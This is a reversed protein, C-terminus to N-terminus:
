KIGYLIGIRGVMMPSRLLKPIFAAKSTNIFDVREIGWSKIENILDDINGYFYKSTFLDQFVFRGNKKVVRLAEKIVKRKDKTDKVEHFVFNSVALDFSENTFPLSSASAQIFRVRDQVGEKMANIECSKRSYDWMGTWYDIGTIKSESYKKALKIVLPGNGCGIDIISGDGNFDIQEILLNYIKNQLDKGHSSFQYHAYLIYIFSITLFISILIFLLGIIVNILILLVLSTSVLLIFIHAIILKKSIWNGYNTKYKEM